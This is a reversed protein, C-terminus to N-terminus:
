HAEANPLVYKRKQNKLCLILLLIPISMLQYGSFLNNTIMLVVSYFLYLSLIKGMFSHPTNKKIAEFSAKLLYIMFSAFIVIGFLGYRQLILAYESDITTEHISKAPGWGFIISEGFRKFALNVFGIRDNISNNEGSMALQFGLTIYKLNLQLIILYIATFIIMLIILKLIFNYKSVVLSYCILAFAVGILATRSQTMLLFFMMLLTLVLYFINKNELFVIGIYFMFFVAISGGVNPDSGTIFLRGGSLMEELHPTGSYLSGVLSVLQDIQFLQVLGVAFFVIMSIIMYYRFKPFLSKDLIFPLALLYPIFQIYKISEIFDGINFNVSLSAYSILSSVFVMFGFAVLFITSNHMIFKLMTMNYFIVLLLLIPAILTTLYVKINLLPIPPFILSSLLGLIVLHEIVSRLTIVGHYKQM